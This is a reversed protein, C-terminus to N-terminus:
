EGCSGFKARGEIQVPTDCSLRAEGRLYDVEDSSVGSYSVTGTACDGVLYGQNSQPDPFFGVDVIDDVGNRFLRVTAGNSLELDVAEWGLPIASTCDVVETVAGEVILEGEVNDCALLLCAPLLLFTRM